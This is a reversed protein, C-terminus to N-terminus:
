LDLEYKSLIFYGGKKIEMIELIKRGLERGWREKKGERERGRKKRRLKIQSCIRQPKNDAGRGTKQSSRGMGVSHILSLRSISNSEQYAELKTKRVKNPKEGQINQWQKQSLKELDFNREGRNGIHSNMMVEQNRDFDKGNKLRGYKPKGQPEAPLSDVELTPSRPEIGTKPLDGPSPFPQGVWYKPRSFEMSLGHPRLSDSVVSCSECKVYKPAYNVRFNWSEQKGYWECSGM